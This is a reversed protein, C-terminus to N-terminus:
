EMKEHKETKETKEDKEIKEIKGNKECNKAKFFMEKIKFIIRKVIPINKQREAFKEFISHYIGTYIFGFGALTLSIINFPMSFDPHPLDVILNKSLIRLIKGKLAFSENKNNEIVQYLITSPILDQGRQPDHPYNEFSELLKKYKIIIKLSSKPPIILYFRLIIRNLSEKEIAIHQDDKVDKEGNLIIKISSLYPHMHYPFLEQHLTHLEHISDINSLEHVLEGDFSYSPKLLYRDSTLPRVFFIDDSLNEFTSNTMNELYSEQFPSKKLDISVLQDKSSSSSSYNSSSYIIESEDYYFSGSIEEPFLQNLYSTDCISTIHFEFHIEKNAKDYYLNITFGTYDTKLLESDKLVQILGKNSENPLLRKLKKIFDICIFDQPNHGFYFEDNNNPFERLQNEIDKKFWENGNKSSFNNTTVIYKNNTLLTSWSFEFMNSLFMVAKPYNAYQDIYITIGPSPLMFNFNRDKFHIQNPRGNSLEIKAQTVNAEIFISDIYSRPLISEELVMSTKDYSTKLNFELHFLTKPFKESSHLPMIYLKEAFHKSGVINYLSLFFFLIVNSIAKKM